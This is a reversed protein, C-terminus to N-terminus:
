QREFWVALSNRAAGDPLFYKDQWSDNTELGFFTKKDGKNRELWYRWRYHDYIDMIHVVYMEAMRRHGRVILLNEDNSYSARYGLNHSGTIVVCNDSFPDIVVVKDHIVAHAGPSAKKLEKQWFAFQDNLASAAVVTDAKAASLHYLAVRYNEVAKPDTAAGRVFLKPNNNQADAVRDIISPSGPQFVLFLVAERANMIAESVKAFDRPERPKKAPKSQQKTNPSFWVSVRSGDV